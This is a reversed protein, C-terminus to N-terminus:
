KKDEKSEKEEELILREYLPFQEETLRKQSDLRELEKKIINMVIRSIEFEKEESAKKSDFSIRGNEQRKIKYKEYEEETIGLNDKVERILKLTVYNNEGPLLQLLVLRDHFNLNLRM